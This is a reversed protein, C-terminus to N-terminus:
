LTFIFLSKQNEYNTEVRQMWETVQIGNLNCAQLVIKGCAISDELADHHQFEIGFYLALNASNYWVSYFRM